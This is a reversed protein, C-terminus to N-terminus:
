SGGGFNGGPAVEHNTVRKEVRENSSELDCMRRVEFRMRDKRQLKIRVKIVGWVINLLVKATKRSNKGIVELGFEWIQLAALCM